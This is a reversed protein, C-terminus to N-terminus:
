YDLIRDVQERRPAAREARDPVGRQGAFTEQIVSVLEAGTNALVNSLEFCEAMSTKPILLFESLFMEGAHDQPSADAWAWINMDGFPHRSMFVSVMACDFIAQSRSITSSSPMRYRNSIAVALEQMHGPVAAHMIKRVTDEFNKRSRLCGVCRLVSIIKMASHRVGPEEDAATPAAGFADASYLLSALQLRDDPNHVHDAAFRRLM